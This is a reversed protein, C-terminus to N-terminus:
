IGAPGVRVLEEDIKKNRAIAGFIKSITGLPKQKKM